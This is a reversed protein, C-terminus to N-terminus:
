PLLDTNPKFPQPQCLRNFQLHWGKENNGFTLMSKITLSTGKDNFGHSPNQSHTPILIKKGESVKLEVRFINM